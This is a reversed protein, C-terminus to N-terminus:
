RIVGRLRDIGRDLLTFFLDGLLAFFGSFDIM